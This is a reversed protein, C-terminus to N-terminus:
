DFGLRFTVKVALIDEGPATLADFLDEPGVQEGLFQQALRNQQWVLYLTSGQAYDWRFVANSRYSWFDFDGDGLIFTQDGDTVQYSLDEPVAEISTGEAVGYIRLDRSRAAALEGFDDYHGSAAFPEAYFEFGVDPTIAIGARVRVYLTSRDLSAFLYRRGFTEARGDPL